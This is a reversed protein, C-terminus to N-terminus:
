EPAIYEPTGVLSEYLIENEDHLIKCIGFDAL